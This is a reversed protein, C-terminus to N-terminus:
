PYAWSLRRLKEASKLGRAGSIGPLFWGRHSQFAELGAPFKSLGMGDELYDLVRVWGPVSVRDASQHDGMPICPRPEM